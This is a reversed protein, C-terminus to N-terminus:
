GNVKGELNNNWYFANQGNFSNEAYDSLKEALYTGKIDEWTIYGSIDESYVRIELQVGFSDRNVCKKPENFICVIKYNKGNITVWSGRM